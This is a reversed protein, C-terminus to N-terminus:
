ERPEIAHHIMEEINNIDAIKRDIIEKILRVAVDEHAQHGKNRAWKEIAAPAEFSKHTIFHLRM